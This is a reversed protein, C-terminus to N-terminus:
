HLRAEVTWCHMPLQNATTTVPNSISQGSFMGLTGSVGSSFPPLTQQGTNTRPYGYLHSFTSHVRQTPDATSTYHGGYQFLPNPINESQPTTFPHFLNSQENTSVEGLSQLPINALHSVDSSLGQFTNAQHEDAVTYSYDHHSLQDNTSLGNNIYSDSATESFYVAEAKHKKIWSETVSSTSPADDKRAHFYDEVDAICSDVDHNVKEIWEENPNDMLTSLEEFKVKTAKHVELLATTLVTIKKRSGGESVLRSLQDIRKTISGKKGACSRKLKGIMKESDPLDDKSKDSM